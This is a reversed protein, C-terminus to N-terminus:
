EKEELRAATEVRALLRRRTTVTRTTRRIQHITKATEDPPPLHGPTEADVFVGREVQGTFFRIAALLANRLENQREEDERPHGSIVEEVVEETMSEYSLEYRKRMFDLIEPDNLEKADRMQKAWKVGRDAISGVKDVISLFLLLMKAGMEIVLAFSGREISSVRVPDVHGTAIEAITNLHGNWKQLYRAIDPISRGSHEHSFVVAIRTSEGDQQRSDPLLGLQEVSHSLARLTRIYESLTKRLEQLTSRAAASNNRTAHLAALVNRRFGEGTQERASIRAFVQEFRLPALHLECGAVVEDLEEEAKQILSDPLASEKKPDPVLQFIRVLTEDYGGTEIERLVTRCALLTVELDV